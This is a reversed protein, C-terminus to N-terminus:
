WAITRLAPEAFPGGVPDYIVDAGQGLTLAKVREKLDERAYDIGEDAGRERAFALKADSSAAAIVRAGLRKGIEVAATGVGGAAGLVLLTEGQRLGARDQLAHLSTGYTFLTAAAAEFGVGDPLPVVAAEPVVITEAFAGHIVTAAVRQGPAVSSVGAGVAR